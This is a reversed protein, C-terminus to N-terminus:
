IDSRSLRKAVAALRKQARTHNPDLAIVREFAARAVDLKGVAMAACGFGFQFNANNPDLSVAKEDAEFALALKNQRNRVNALFTWALAFSPDLSVAAQFQAEAGSPDNTDRLALGLGTLTEPTPVLQISKRYAAVADPFRGLARLARGLYAWAEEFNPDAEIAKRFKVEAGAFDREDLLVRGIGFHVQPAFDDIKVAVDYAAKSESLRKM